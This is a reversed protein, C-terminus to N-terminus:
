AMEGRVDIAGTVASSIVATRLEQLKSMSSRLTKCMADHRKQSAQLELVKAEQVALDPLRVRFSLIQEPSIHPVSIGTLIPRFYDKFQPSSLLVRLYRQSLGRRARLRAVRQLLLSPIDSEAIEAVRIGAEIWPRDMGLVLDGDRLQYRSFRGAQSRPWHVVDDWRINGTSVNVGRLLRIDTPDHSFVSSEFAYGPLLDVYYALRVEDCNRDAAVIREILSNLKETLLEVHREKKAVLADIRATERALFRAIAQQEKISPAPFVFTGFVYQYLHQITSGASMYDIFAAFVKSQLVWYLFESVYQVSLPRTVFLGSNLCALGKLDNLLAVKGISGDKTILLDGNRLQIYRDQDYRSTSVRYCRSWDVRGNAFDTGTVCYPGEDTFEDARLNQWGIRGKVYTSYKIKLHSWGAPIKGLWQVGSDKYSPYSRFRRLGDTVLEVTRGSM